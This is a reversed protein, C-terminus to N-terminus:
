NITQEENKSSVFDPERFKTSLKESQTQDESQPAQVFDVTFEQKYLWFNLLYARKLLYIPNQPFQM